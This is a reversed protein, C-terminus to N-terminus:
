QRLASHDANDTIVSFTFPKGDWWGVPLANPLGERVGELGALCANVEPLHVTLIAQRTALSLCSFMYAIELGPLALSDHQTLFKKSKRAVYKQLPFM